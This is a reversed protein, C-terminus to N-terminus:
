NLYQDKYIKFDSKIEPVLPIDKTQVDRRVGSANVLIIVFGWISIMFFVGIVGYIIFRKAEARKEEEAAHVVYQFIGWFIVFVALAIIFPVLADLVGRIRTLVTFITDGTAGPTRPAGTPDVGAPTTTKSVSEPSPTRGSASPTSGTNTDPPPTTGSAAPPTTGTPQRDAPPTAGALGGTAGGAPTGAPTGGAVPTGAAPTGGTPSTNGAPPVSGAPQTSPSRVPQGAVIVNGGSAGQPVIGETGLSVALANGEGGFPDRHELNGGTIGPIACTNQIEVWEGWVPGPCSSTKSETIEGTQGSPCTRPRTQAPEPVCPAVATFARLNSTGYPSVLKLLYEGAPLDAPVKVGGAVGQATETLGVQPRAVVDGTQVSIIQGEYSTDRTRLGRGQFTLTEGPEAKQPDLVDIYVAPLVAFPDSVPEPDKNFFNGAGNVIANTVSEVWGRWGEAPVEGGVTLPKLVRLDESNSMKGGISVSVPYTGFFNNTGPLFFKLATPGLYTVPKIIVTEESDGYQISVFNDTAATFGSGKIVVESGLYVSGPVFGAIVPVQQATAMEPLIVAAFFLVNLLIRRM